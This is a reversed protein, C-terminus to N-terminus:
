TTFGTSKWSNTLATLSSPTKQATTLSGGGPLTLFDYRHGRESNKQQLVVGPIRLQNLPQQFCILEDTLYGRDLRADLKQGRKFFILKVQDERIVLKRREVANGCQLEGRAGASRGKM